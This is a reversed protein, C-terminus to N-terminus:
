ARVCHRTSQQQEVFIQNKKLFFSVKVHPHFCLLLLLAQWNLFKDGVSSRHSRMHESRYNDRSPRQTLACVTGTLALPPWLCAAEM